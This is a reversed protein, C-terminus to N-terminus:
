LRCIQWYDRKELVQMKFLYCRLLVWNRNKVQWEIMKFAYANMQIENYISTNKLLTIGLWKKTKISLIKKIFLNKLEVQKDNHSEEASARLVRVHFM